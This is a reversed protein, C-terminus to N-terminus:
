TLAMRVLELVEELRDFPERRRWAIAEEILGRWREGLQTVAWRAATDKSVVQGTKITYFARCMTLVAYVQYEAEQLHSHDVLQPQWWETLIDRAAKKVTEVPIPEILSKPDPGMLIIGRERIVSLQIIWGSDHFDIEFSGDSRLSPYYSYSPDYIKLHEVPIYSGEMRNAWELGSSAVRNHMARLTELIETSLPRRVAAMWDIDSRGPNFDGTALSGFVYLGVLEDGLTRHMEDLLLRLVRNIEPYPTPPSFQM